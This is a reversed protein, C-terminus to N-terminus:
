SSPLSPQNKPSGGAVLANEGVVANAAALFTTMAAQADDEADIIAHGTADPPDGSSLLDSLDAFTLESPALHYTYHARWLADWLEEYAVVVPSAPGLQIGLQGRHPKMNALRM